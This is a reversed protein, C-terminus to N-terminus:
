PPSAGDPPVPSAPPAAARERRWLLWALLVAGISVGMDAVNFTWFRVRGVGIDIFDVVGRDARLRDALNGIAGGIVLGLAAGMARDGPAAERYMRALVFVAGVALLSFVVRSADGAHMGMAAGRNYALTLRAVDGVVSVPVYPVLHTEALRKTTWDAVLLVLVLPWFM